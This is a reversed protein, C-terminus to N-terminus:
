YNFHRKIQRGRVFPSQTNLARASLGCEGYQLYDERKRKFAADSSSCSGDAYDEATTESQFRPQNSLGPLLWFDWSM